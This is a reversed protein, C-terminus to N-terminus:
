PRQSQLQQPKLTPYQIREVSTADEHIRYARAQEILSKMRQRYARQRANAKQRKIDTSVRPRGPKPHYINEPVTFLGRSKFSEPTSNELTSHNSSSYWSNSLNRSKRRAWLPAPLIAKLALWEAYAALYADAINGDEFRSALIPPAAQIRRQLEQRSTVLRSIEHQWDRLNFGFSELSDSRSALEKLTAPRHLSTALPSPM